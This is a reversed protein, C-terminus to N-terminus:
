PLIRQLITDKLIWRHGLGVLGHGGALVLIANAALRHWDVIQNGLVHRATADYTGFKPIHGIGFLDDGRVWANAMGLVLTTLVIAYLMYHVFKALRWAVSRPDDFQAGRTVRWFLRYAMLGLLVTGVVIHVSRADVRLPGRPFWDIARAGIWMLIIIIAVSWHLWISRIDYKESKVSM